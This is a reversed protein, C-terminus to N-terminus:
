FATIRSGSSTIILSAALKRALYIRLSLPWNHDVRRGLFVVALSMAVFIGFARIADSNLGLLSIAHASLFGGQQTWPAPKRVHSTAMATAASRRRGIYRDASEAKGCIVAGIAEESEAVHECWVVAPWRQFM